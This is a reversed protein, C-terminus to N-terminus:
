KVFAEIPNPQRRRYLLIQCDFDVLVSALDMLFGDWISLFAIQPPKPPDHPALDAGPREARSRRTVFTDIKRIESRNKNKKPGQRARSAVAQFIGVQSVGSALRTYVFM